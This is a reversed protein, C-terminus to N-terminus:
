MDADPPCGGRHQAATPTSVPWASRPTRRRGRWRSASATAWAPTGTTHKPPVTPNTKAHSSSSANPHQHHNTQNRAALHSPQVTALPTPRDCFFSEHWGGGGGVYSPSVDMGFMDGVWGGVLRLSEEAEELALLALYAGDVAKRVRWLPAAFPVTPAM